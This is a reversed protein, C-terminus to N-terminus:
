LRFSRICFPLCSHFWYACASLLYFIFVSPFFARVVSVPRACREVLSQRHPPSGLPPPPPPSLAVAAAHRNRVATAARYLSWLAADVQVPRRDEDGGRSTRRFPRRGSGRGRTQVAVSISRPSSVPASRTRTERPGSSRGSSRWFLQSWWSMSWYFFYLLFERALSQHRTISINKRKQVLRWRRLNSSCRVRKFFFFRWIAICILILIVM